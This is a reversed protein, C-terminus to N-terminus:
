HFTRHPNIKASSLRIHICCKFAFILNLINFGIEGQDGQGETMVKKMTLIFIWTVNVVCAFHALYIMPLGISIVLSYSLNEILCLKM